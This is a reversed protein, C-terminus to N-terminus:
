SSQAPTVSIWGKMGAAFHGPLHCGYEIRGARTFTWTLTRTAGPPLAVENPEARSNMKEDARMETEHRRQLSAPGLVFEHAIRGTNTIIFRITQGARISLKDPTFRMADSADIRITRVAESAPAPHGWALSVKGRSPRHGPSANANAAPTLVMLPGAIAAIAMISRLSMPSFSYKPTVAPATAGASPQQFPPRIARILRRRHITKPM